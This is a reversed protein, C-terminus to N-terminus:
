HRQLTAILTRVSLRPRHGCRYHVSDHEVQESVDINGLQQLITQGLLDTQGMIGNTGSIPENDTLPQTAEGQQGGNLSDTHSLENVPKVDTVKTDSDTDVEGTTVMTM